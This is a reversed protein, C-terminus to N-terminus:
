LPVLVCIDLFTVLADNCLNSYIGTVVRALVLIDNLKSGDNCMQM